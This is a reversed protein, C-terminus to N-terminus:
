AGGCSHQSDPLSWAEGTRLNTTTYIRGRDDGPPCDQPIEILCMMVPDGVRSRVLAGEKEYSVQHGGNEFQVASGDNPDANIDAQFRSTIEAIVTKACEGIGTPLGGASEPGGESFGGGNEAWAPLSVSAGLDQFRRILDVQAAMICDSDSGCESRAALGERAAARAASKGGARRAEEYALAALRDLQSLQADGCIAIEDATTADDCDFSPGQALAPSAALGALLAVIPLPPRM